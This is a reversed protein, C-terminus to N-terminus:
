NKPNGTILWLIFNFIATVVVTIIAVLWNTKTQSSMKKQSDKRQDARNERLKEEEKAQEIWRHREDHVALKQNIQALGEKIKDMDESHEKREQAQLDLNKEFMGVMKAFMSRITMDKETEEAM